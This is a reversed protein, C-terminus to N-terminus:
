RVAAALGKEKGDAIAARDGVHERGLEAAKVPVFPITGECRWPRRDLYGSVLLALRGVVITELYHEWLTSPGGTGAPRGTGSCHGDLGIKSGHGGARVPAGGTGPVPPAPRAPKEGGWAKRKGDM